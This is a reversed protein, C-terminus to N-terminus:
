SERTLIKDTDAGPIDKSENTKDSLFCFCWEINVMILEGARLFM